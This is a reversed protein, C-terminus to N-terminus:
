KGFGSDTRCVPSYAILMNLSRLSKEIADRAEGPNLSPLLKDLTQAAQAAEGCTVGLSGIMRDAVSPDLSPQSSNGAFATTACFLCVVALIKSKM